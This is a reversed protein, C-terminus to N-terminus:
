RLPTKGITIDLDLVPVDGWDKISSDAGLIVIDPKGPCRFVVRLREGDQRVVSCQVEVIAPRDVPPFDQMM